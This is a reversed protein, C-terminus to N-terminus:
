EGKPDLTKLHKEIEEAYVCAALIHARLYVFAETGRPTNYEETGELWERWEAPTKEQCGVKVSGSRTIEPSYKSRLGTAGNEWTGNEWRGNKWRGNLWIGDYWVGDYWTGDKWVGKERTGDMWVGNEWVGDKWRGDKWRGREWTGNEWTGREWTGGWWTGSEWTGVWWTGDKWTVYGGEGIHVLEDSTDADLLWKPCKPWETKPKFEM